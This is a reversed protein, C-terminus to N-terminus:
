PFHAVEEVTSKVLHTTHSQPHPQGVTKPPVVSAGRPIQTQDLGQMELAAPSSAARIDRSASQSTRLELTWQGQEHLPGEILSTRSAQMHGPHLMLKNCLALRTENEDAKVLLM